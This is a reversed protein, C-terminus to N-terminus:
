KQVIVLLLTSLKEKNDNYLYFDYNCNKILM